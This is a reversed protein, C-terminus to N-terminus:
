AGSGEIVNSRNWVVDKSSILVSTMKTFRYFRVAFLVAIGKLRANGGRLRSSRLIRVWDLAPSLLVAFARRMWRLQWRPGIREVNAAHQIHRDWKVFLEKLTKRAPHYAIMGPVYRFKYGAARVSKGWEIDEAFQIGKFPGIEFFDKRKVALNGTGCFGHKEIYLQFRYAFVSEYAEIASCPKAEDRWIQVDGGLVTLDPAASMEELITKLWDRQARCDADIFALIGGTAEDAGRNRAAGPGPKREEILRIQLAEGSIDPLEASGNDAVIVEFLQSDITQAGLSSLCNRLDEAQNLHPIVVTILPSKKDM